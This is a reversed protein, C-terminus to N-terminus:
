PSETNPTSQHAFNVKWDGNQRVWITNFAFTTEPGDEGTTYHEIWTGKYMVSVVNPALVTTHSEITRFTQGEINDFAPQFADYAVDYGVFLNGDNAIIFEPSNRFYSMGRDFEAHEWANMSETHLANVEAAIAAKQEETLETTAPQCAAFVSLVFAALVFRRM